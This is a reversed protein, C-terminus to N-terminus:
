LPKFSRKVLFKEIEIVFLGPLALLIIPLWWAAPFAATRFIDQLFPIYTIMLQSGFAASIGILV